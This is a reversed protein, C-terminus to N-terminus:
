MDVIGPRLLVNREDCFYKLKTKQISAEESGAYDQSADHYDKGCDIGLDLLCEGEDAFIKVASAQFCVDYQSANKSNGDISNKTISAWITNDVLKCDAELNEFFEDLTHCSIRM